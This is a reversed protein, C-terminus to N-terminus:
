MVTDYSVFDGFTFTITVDMALGTCTTSGFFLPIDCCFNALVGSVAIPSSCDVNPNFMAKHPVTISGNASWITNDCSRGGPNDVNTCVFSNGNLINSTGSTMQVSYNFISRDRVGPGIQEDYYIGAMAGYFQMTGIPSCIGANNGPVAALGNSPYTWLCHDQVHTFSPFDLPFPIFGPDNAGLESDFYNFNPTRTRMVFIDSKGNGDIKMTVSTPIRTDSCISCPYKGQCQSRNTHYNPMVYADSNAMNCLGSVDMISVAHTQPEYENNSWREYTWCHIHAL